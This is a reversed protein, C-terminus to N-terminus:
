VWQGFSDPHVDAQVKWVGNQLVLTYVNTDTTQTTSGDALTTSWTETTRAQATTADLLTIPGWQLNVLQISKVGSSLLGNLNQVSLQYYSATATDQMLAPNDTAVAQIQEQNGKQIVSEIASVQDSTPDAANPAALAQPVGWVALMLVAAILLLVQKTRM